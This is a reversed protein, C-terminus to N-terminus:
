LRSIPLRRRQLDLRLRRRYDELTTPAYALLRLLIGNEPNIHLTLGRGPYVEESEPILLMGLYADLRAEPTGIAQLLAPLGASLEPSEGDILVVRDQDLWIRIGQPYGEAEASLWSVEQGEEGLHGAGRWDDEIPFVAAVDALSTEPALGRWDLFDRCALARLAAQASSDSGNRSM